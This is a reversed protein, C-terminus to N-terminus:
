TEEVRCEVQCSSDGGGEWNSPGLIYNKLEALIPLIKEAEGFCKTMNERLLKEKLLYAEAQVQFHQQKRRLQANEEEIM